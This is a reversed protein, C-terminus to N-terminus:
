NNVFGDKTTSEFSSTPHMGNQAWAPHLHELDFVVVLSWHYDYCIALLYIIPM